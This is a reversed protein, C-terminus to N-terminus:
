ELILMLRGTFANSTGEVGFRDLTIHRYNLNFLAYSTLWWNLGATYIDLQGGDIPGDTLDLTSYRLAAEWAGWGGQYVSKAVPLPGLVGGRKRYPRMEGTLAWSAAIHQGKFSLDGFDTSGVDSHTYEYALWFPGKRWTAEVNYTFVEDAAITGTDAFVPSQDVEPETLYRVDLKADTQRVGFGLHLLNSEDASLFPLGTVRGVLQNDNDDFSDGRDLWDNFAGGAWTLRQNLATGNVVAGVSRSPLMADAAASREQLPEYALSMIREMSIPAKQKGISLSNDSFLPIDLRYDYWVLEDDTPSNFGKDFTNTAVFVTYIWPKDFNLTGIAGLRLGRIEGGEFENLDGVQSRSAADQDLWWNRDMMLAGTLLGSVYKGQWRNWRTTDHYDLPIAMPPPEYSLWGSTRVRKEVPAAAVRPLGNKIIEGGEVAFRVYPKSDMLIRMNGRPDESLIVFGPKDGMDLSGLLYGLQADVAIEVADHAIDDQTVVDLKGDTILINVVVDDAAGERDILHVNKILIKGPDAAQVGVSLLLALLLLVLHLPFRPRPKYM